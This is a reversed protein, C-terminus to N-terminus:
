SVMPAETPRWGSGPRARLSSEVAPSPKARVRISGVSCLHRAHRVYPVANTEGSPEFRTALSRARGRAGVYEGLTQPRSAPRGSQPREVGTEEYFSRPRGFAAGRNRTM